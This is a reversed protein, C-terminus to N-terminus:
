SAPTSSGAQLAPVAAMTNPSADTTERILRAGLPTSPSAHRDRSPDQKDCYGFQLASLALPWAHASNSLKM